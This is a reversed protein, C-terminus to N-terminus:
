GGGLFAFVRNRTEDVDAGVRFPNLMSSGHVGPTAVYTAHGAAEFLELQRAVSEIEAEGRPRLVLVPVALRDAVANADCGVMPDGSAPSFALVRDMAVETSAHLILAGSYSSGWGILSGEPKWRRASELVARVEPLADCYGFGEPEPTAAATRNPFGFRDGGGHLDATVVDYGAAMLEAVLFGYEGHASAGGQHFLAIVRGEGPGDYRDVSLAGAPGDVQVEDRLPPGGSLHGIFSAMRDFNAEDEDMISAGHRGVRAQHFHGQGDPFADSVVRVAEGEDVAAVSLVPATARSAWDRVLSPRADDYEAPSFAVVGEVSGEAALRVVLMASFSSGVAFRPSGPLQNEVWALAAAMDMWSADITAWPSGTGAEVAAMVAATGNRQATLNEVDNRTRGWRLDVALANYGLAQLRPAITRYEGRSSASQHFLLVTPAFPDAGRYLDATVQLGDDAAFEVTEFALARERTAPTGPPQDVSEAGCAAVLAIAVVGLLMGVPGARTTRNRTM